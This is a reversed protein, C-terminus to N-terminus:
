RGRTHGIEVLAALQPVQRQDIGVVPAWDVVVLAAREKAPDLATRRLRTTPLRPPSRSPAFNNTTWRASASRSRCGSQNQRSRRAAGAEAAARGGLVGHGKAPPPPRSPRRGAEARVRVCPPQPSM